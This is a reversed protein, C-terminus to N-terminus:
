ENVASEMAKLSDRAFRKQLHRSIPYGLRALFHRPRSFAFLDYWVSDDEPYYEVSFREEGQEVHGPLTGYAFGFRELTGHEEIVYVIRSANLSWFGLHRVIIAVCSGEVIPVNKPAIEIWDMEFMKWHKFAEVARAFTEPGEGLKIRNHDVKYGDPAVLRSAGIEPYSFLQSQQGALFRPVVKEDPRKVLFM